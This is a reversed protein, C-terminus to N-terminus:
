ATEPQLSVWAGNVDQFTLWGLPPIEGLSDLEIEAETDGVAIVLAEAPDDAYWPGAEDMGEGPSRVSWLLDSIPLDEDRLLEEPWTCVQFNKTILCV